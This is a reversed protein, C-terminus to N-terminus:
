ENFIIWFQDGVTGPEWVNQGNYVSQWLKGNHCVVSGKQYQESLGDWPIWSAFGTNAGSEGKLAAIQEELTNVRFSLQQLMELIQPREQEPVAHECTLALLEEMQAETLDGLIYLKKIKYQSEALKCNGSMIVSKLIEFM